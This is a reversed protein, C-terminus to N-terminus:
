LTVEGQGTGQGSSQGPAQPAPDKGTMSNWTEGLGRMAEDMQRSFSAGFDAAGERAGALADNWAKVIKDQPREKEVAALTQSGLNGLKTGLAALQERTMKGGKLAERLLPLVKERYEEAPIVDRLAALGGYDAPSIEEGNWAAREMRQNAALFICCAALVVIVINKVM